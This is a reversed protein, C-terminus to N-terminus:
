EVDFEEENAQFSYLTEDLHITDENFDKVFKNIVSDTVEEVNLGIDLGLGDDGCSDMDVHESVKVADEDELEDITEAIYLGIEEEVDNLAKLDGNEDEQFRIPKFNPFKQAAKHEAMEYVESAHHLRLTYIVADYIAAKGEFMGIFQFHKYEENNDESDVLVFDNNSHAIKERVSEIEAHNYSQNQATMM